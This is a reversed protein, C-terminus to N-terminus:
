LRGTVFLYVMVLFTVTGCAYGVGAFFATVPAAGALWTMVGGAAGVLVGVISFIAMWLGRTADGVAPATM